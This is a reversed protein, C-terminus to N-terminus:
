HKVFRERAATGNQLEAILVYAGSKLSSADVDASTGRASQALVERGDASIVRLSSLGVVSNVRLVDSAPVPSLTLDRVATEAIGTSFEAVLVSPETIVPPNYDFFINATNEIETAPILPLKPQIRFAVFGHSAPENVNSDPLLINPFIFKVIGQGILSRMCSHSAAGWQITAPDLTTPLTDTIIVNFATDTGTNQFRITYDIWNDVDIYYLDNSWQSSTLATKDNPDFSATVTVSTSASNNAVVADTNATSLSVSAGIVNGILGLDPPVQLQVHISRQGFAGLAGQNWTVTTGSVLSPAPNASIYTFAPDFTFVTSTAGTTAPTLNSQQISYQLVFGPRAAGSAIMVQADLPVLATDAVNITQVGSVNVPAPPAPCHQAIDAAIQQMAYTGSPLNISYGGGSNATTYYPGPSFELLAGPIRTESGTGGMVCDENYDMYITGNVNGCAAGLDPVTVMMSDGCADMAQSLSGSGLGFIKLVVWYDGPLLGTFSKVLPTYGLYDYNLTTGNRKLRLDVVQDNGEATFAVQISGTASSACAGQVDLVSMVPWQVPYGVHLLATGPCGTADQYDVELTGGPVGDHNLLIEGNPPGGIVESWYGITQIPLAFNVSLNIETLATTSFVSHCYENNLAYCYARAGGLDTYPFSSYALVTVPETVQTGVFDTVTVSYTGASVNNLYQETILNDWLYTYPPVGGSPQALVYGNSNGCYEHHTSFTVTLAQAAATIM